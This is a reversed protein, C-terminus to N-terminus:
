KIKINVKKTVKNYYKNGTYTIISKFIGKKTLKTIKFTAVGKSNTKATYTKKNVKITVKTNKMVKNLNNKLTISYKKTKVSKKFTKAKATIKPTAKKVVIKVTNSSNNYNIDGAFTITATYTNPALDNTSFKVQGNEDTTRNYKKGNSLTIVINAGTLAHNLNDKFNAIMYKGSNYVVEINNVNITVDLRSNNEQKSSNEKNIVINYEYDINIMSNYIMGTKTNSISVNYNGSAAYIYLIGVDGTINYEKNLYYNNTFIVKLIHNTTLSVYITKGDIKISTESHNLNNGYEDFFNAEISNKGTNIKLTDNTPIKVLNIPKTTIVKNITNNINDYHINLSNKYVAAGMGNAYFVSDQIIHYFKKYDTEFYIYPMESTSRIYIDFYSAPQLFKSNFIHTNNQNAYIANGKLSTNNEFLINYVNINNGRISIAGGDNTANNRIFISNSVNCSNSNFYIAGGSVAKNDIFTSNIIEHNGRSNTYIAGGVGYQNDLASNNKFISNEIFFNYASITIAGGGGTNAKNNEFICNSISINEGKVYIAGAVSASNGIFSLNYAKGNNGNWQIAAGYNKTGTLFGNTFKINKLIVNDCQINFIGSAGKGDITHGNGDIIIKKSIKIGQTYKSDSDPNYIYDSNLKFTGGKSTSDINGSLISFSNSYTVGLKEDNIASNVVSTNEYDNSATGVISDVRVDYISDISNESEIISNNSEIYKLNSTDNIIESASVSACTFFLILILSLILIKKM